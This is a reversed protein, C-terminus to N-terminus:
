KGETATPAPPDIKPEVFFPEGQEVRLGLPGIELPKVPQRAQALIVEKNVEFKTRVLDKRGISLLNDLVKEWTWRSLLKLTPNGTRWGMTGHVFQVSRHKGFEERNADSWASLAETLLEQEVAIQGLREAHQEDIANKAAEIEIRHREKEIALERIKGVLAEAEVRSRVFPVTRKIRTSM